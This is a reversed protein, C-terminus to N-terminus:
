VTVSKALNRPKDPDLGRLDALIFALIQGIVTISLIRLIGLESVEIYENFKPHNNPSIGIVFAGRAKLENTANEALADHKGNSLVICPTGDAILAIPGHKLETCTMGEAHIYTIEKIKMAIELAIPYTSHSGVVLLHDSNKVKKAISLLRTHMSNTLMTGIEKETQKLEISDNLTNNSIIRYLWALKATFAKTSAVAREPGAQLELTIDCLRSIASHPVNILGIITAGKKKAWEIARLTDATEGSQSLAFIVTDADIDPFLHTLENSIVATASKKRIEAFMYSGALGAFYASGCGIFLIQKKKEVIEQVRSLIQATESDIHAIRALVAPQEHIEKEMVSIYGNLNSDTFEKPPKTGDYPLINGSIRDQITIKDPTLIAM